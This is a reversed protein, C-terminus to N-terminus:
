WSTQFSRNWTRWYWLWFKNQWSLRTCKSNVLNSTTCRTKGLGLFNINGV